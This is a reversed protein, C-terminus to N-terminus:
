RAIPDDLAVLGEDVLLMVAAATIPKTISAVRVIADAEINGAHAIELEEGRAVLAAAGPVTGEEVAKGLLDRLSTMVSVSARPVRHEDSWRAGVSWRDSEDFADPDEDIDPHM